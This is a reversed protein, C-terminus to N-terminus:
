NKSLKPLELLFAHPRQHMGCSPYFLNETLYYYNNNYRFLQARPPSRKLKIIIPTLLSGFLGDLFQSFTLIETTLSRMKM